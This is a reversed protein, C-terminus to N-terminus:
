IMIQTIILIKIINLLFFLELFIAPRSRAHSCTGLVDPVGRGLFTEIQYNIKRL